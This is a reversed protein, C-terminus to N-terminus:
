NIERGKYQTIKAIKKHIAKYNCILKKEDEFYIGDIIILILEQPEMVLEDGTYM